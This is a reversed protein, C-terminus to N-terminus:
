PLVNWRGGVCAVSPPLVVFGGSPSNVGVPLGARAAVDAWLPVGVGPLAVGAWLAVAVFIFPLWVSPPLVGHYTSNLTTTTLSLKSEDHGM